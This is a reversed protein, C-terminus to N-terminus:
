LHANLFLARTVLPNVAEPPLQLIEVVQRCLDVRDLGQADDIANITKLIKQLYAISHDLKQRAEGGSRPDDWASLLINLGPLRKLKEVSDVGQAVNDYIPLQGPLLVCDGSVLVGENKFFFSLSGDSHGPTFVVELKTHGDLDIREGDELLRDIKVSGAVLSEFGPVPRERYQQQVDEIWEKEGEHAYIGCGSKKQIQRAAGIHDPHSHTLYLSRIEEVSRGNKEIYDLITQLSAAVGSDILYVGNKGFVIYSYVFREAKLDPRVPIQFRHKLAHISETIKM